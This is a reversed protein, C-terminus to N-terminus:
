DTVELTTEQDRIWRLRRFCKAQLWSGGPNPQLSLINIHQPHSFSTYLHFNVWPLSSHHRQYKNDSGPLWGPRIHHHHYLQYYGYSVNIPSKSRGLWPVFARCYSAWREHFGWSSWMLNIARRIGRKCIICLSITSVVQGLHCLYCVTSSFSLNVHRDGHQGLLKSYGVILKIYWNTYTAM